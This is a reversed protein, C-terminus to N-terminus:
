YTEDFHENEKRTLSKFDNRWLCVTLKVWPCKHPLPNTWISIISILVSIDINGDM